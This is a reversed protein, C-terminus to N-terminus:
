PGVEEVDLGAIERGELAAGLAQITGDPESQPDENEAMSRAQHLAVSAARAEEISKCPTQITNKLRLWAMEISAPFASQNGSLFDETLGIWHRVLGVVLPPPLEFSVFCCEQGKMRVSEQMIAFAVYMKTSYDGAIALPPVPSAPLGVIYQIKVQGHLDEVKKEDEMADTPKVEFMVPTTEALRDPDASPGGVRIDTLAAAYSAHPRTDLLCAMLNKTGNAKYAKLAKNGANELLGIITDYSHVEKGRIEKGGEGLEEMDWKLQEMLLTFYARDWMKIYTCGLQSLLASASGHATKSAIYVCITDRVGSSSTFKLLTPVGEVPADTRTDQLQKSLPSSPEQPVLPLRLAGSHQATADSQADTSGHVAGSRVGLKASRRSHREEEERLEELTSKGKLDGSDVAAILGAMSPVKLSYATSYLADLQPSSLNKGKVCTLMAEAEDWQKMCLNVIPLLDAPIPDEVLIWLDDPRMRTTRKEQPIDCFSLIRLENRTKDPLADLAGRPWLQVVLKDEETRLLVKLRAYMKWDESEKEPLAKGKGSLDDVGLGMEAIAKTVDELLNESQIRVRKGRWLTWM